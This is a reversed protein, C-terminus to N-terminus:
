SSEETKAKIEEEEEEEGDLVLRMDRKCVPCRPSQKFWEGICNVHYAHECPLDRVTDKFTFDELCISCCDSRIAGSYLKEPIQDLYEKPLPVPVKSQLFEQLHLSGLMDMTPTMNAALAQFFLLGLQSRERQDASQVMMLRLFDVMADPSRLSSSSASGLTPIPIPNPQDLREVSLNINDIRELLRDVEELNEPNEELIRQM